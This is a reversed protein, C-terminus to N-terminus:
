PEILSCTYFSNTVFCTHRIHRIDYAKYFCTHRIHRIGYAKYM